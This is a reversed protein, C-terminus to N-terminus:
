RPRHKQGFCLDALCLISICTFMDTVMERAGTITRNSTRLDSSLVCTLADTFNVLILM